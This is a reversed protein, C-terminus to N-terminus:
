LTRPLDFAGILPLGFSTIRAILGDEVDLVNMGLLRYADDGPRRVYAAAAPSRNAVTTTLRLHGPYDPRSADIYRSFVTVVADRGDFWFGFPPMAQRVDERLLAAFAAVDARDHAEIFRRLASREEDTLTTANRWELRREPMRERMTSRARQLASNVSTASTELLAATENASWGLVDRLLMVARQRPPLFQITALFVLEITERSVTVEDPEAEAPAAAELLSDPVPQIWPLDEPPAGLDPRRERALPESADEAPVDPALVRRPRRELATLTVNTAIRYLWTRLSSRGEFGARGRWARMMTEQVLDEAEDISGAMRYCHVLLQRRYPETAAAFAAEDGERFADLVSAEDGRAAPDRVSV